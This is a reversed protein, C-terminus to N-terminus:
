KSHRGELDFLAGLTMCAQSFTLQRFRLPEIPESETSTGSPFQIGSRPQFRSRFYGSLESSRRQHWEATVHLVSEQTMLPCVSEFLETLVEADGPHVSAPCLMFIAAPLLAVCMPSMDPFSKLINSCIWSLGHLKSRQVFYGKRLPPYGAMDRAGWHFHLVFPRALSLRHREPSPYHTLFMAGIVGMLLNSIIPIRAPLSEIQSFFWIPETVARFPIIAAEALADLSKYYFDGLRYGEGDSCVECRSVRGEKTVSHSILNEFARKPNSRISAERLLAALISRVAESNATVVAAEFEFQFSPIARMRNRHFDILPLRRGDIETQVFPCFWPYERTRSAFRAGDWSYIPLSLRQGKNATSGPLYVWDGSRIGGAEAETQTFCYILPYGYGRSCIAKNFDTAGSRGAAIEEWNGIHGTRPPQLGPNAGLFNFLAGIPLDLTGFHVYDFATRRASLGAVDVADTIGLTEIQLITRDHASM